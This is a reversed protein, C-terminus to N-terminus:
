NAGQMAHEPEAEECEDSVIECTGNCDITQRVRGKADEIVFRRHGDSLERVTLSLGRPQLEELTLRSLQTGFKQETIADEARLRTLQHLVIHVIEPIERRPSLATDLNM